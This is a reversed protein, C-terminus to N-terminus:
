VHRWTLKNKIKYATSRHIGYKNSIAAPGDSSLRIARVLDATLKASGQSSGKAQRNKAIKDKQNDINSGLFLHGPNVCAPTDCRHLVCAGKPIPGIFQEYSYRHMTFSKNNWTIGGYGSSNLYGNWIWCGSETVMEFSNDFRERMNRYKFSPGKYGCLVTYADGHKLFRQYHMGCYDATRHKRGCEKVKCILTRAKKGGMKETIVKLPDGHNKFRRYHKDCFGKSAHNKECGEVSCKKKEKM